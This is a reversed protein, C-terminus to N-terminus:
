REVKPLVARLSARERTSARGLIAGAEVAFAILAGTKMAQLRRIDKEALPPEGRGFRGEASLDLMQGGVMGGAYAVLLAIQAFSLRDNMM